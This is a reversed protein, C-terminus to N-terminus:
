LATGGTDAARRHLYADAVRVLRNRREDALEDTSPEGEGGGRGHEHLALAIFVCSRRGACLPSRPWTNTRVASMITAKTATSAMTKSRPILKARRRKACFAASAATSAAERSIALLM